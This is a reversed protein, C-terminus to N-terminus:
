LMGMYIVDLRHGVHRVVFIDEHTDQAKISPSTVQLVILGQQLRLLEFSMDGFVNSRLCLRLVLIVHFKNGQRISIMIQWPSVPRRYGDRSTMLLRFKVVDRMVTVHESM